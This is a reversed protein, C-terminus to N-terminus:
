SYIFGTDSIQMWHVRLICMSGIILDVMINRFEGGHSGVNMAVHQFAVLIILPLIPHHTVCASDLMVSFVSVM